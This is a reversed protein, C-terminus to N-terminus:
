NQKNVKELTVPQKLITTIVFYNVPIIRRVLDDAVIFVIHPPQDNTVLNFGLHLTTILIFILKEM